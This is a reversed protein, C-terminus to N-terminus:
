DDLWKGSEELSERAKMIILEAEAKPLEVRETLEEVDLDALVEVTTIDEALLDLLLNDKDVLLSRFEDDVVKLKEILDNEKQEVAAKARRQIEDIDADDFGEIKALDEPEAYAIQEIMEFGEDYLVRASEKDMDLKEAVIGSKKVAIDDMEKVFDEPMLLNLEWGTLESAMRVNAGSKGIAQALSEADIRIDMKRREKDMVVEKAQAPSLANLVYKAEDEDWPIIDIREGNLENTVSQVRSGRIGVCTGVPDVRPDKSRVAVKARNGPARVVALIELIGKEIEPVANRMLAKLFEPSTRNLIIQPGRPDEYVEKVIARLRDDQKFSERPIQQNKPLRCDVKNVEVIVDGRDRWVKKVTGMVLDEGRELLEGSLKRREAERLRNHFYYKAAQMSTRSDFDIDELQEEVYGELEVEQDPFKKVADAEYIEADPNELGAETEVVMWRRWARREGSEPDITVRFEAEECQPLLKRLSQALSDAFIGLVQEYGLGRDSAISRIYLLFDSAKPM